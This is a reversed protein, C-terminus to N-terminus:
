FSQNYGDDKPTYCSGFDEIGFTWVGCAVSANFDPTKETDVSVSIFM